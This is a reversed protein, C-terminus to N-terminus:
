DMEGPHGAASRRFLTAWPTLRPFQNLLVPLGRVPRWLITARQLCKQRGPRPKIESRQSVWPKRRPSRDTAGAPATPTVAVFSM